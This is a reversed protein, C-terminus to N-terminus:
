PAKYDSDSFGWNVWFKQKEWNQIIHQEIQFARSNAKILRLPIIDM